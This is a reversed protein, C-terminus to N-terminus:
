RGPPFPPRGQGPPPILNPPVGAAQLTAAGNTPDRWMVERSLRQLAANRANEDAIGNAWNVASQPDNPAIAYAMSASASDHAQGNPLGNVWDTAASLNARAWQGVAQSVARSSTQPDGLSLSWNAAAAPDQGAWTRVVQNVPSRWGGGSPDKAAQAAAAAPDVNAWERYALNTLPENGPFDGAKQALVFAASPDTDALYSVIGRLAQYRLDPNPLGMARDIAGQVGTAAEQQFVSEAINEYGANSAAFQLAGNPDSQVWSSILLRSALDRDSSGPLRRIRKLADAYEGPKLTNIFSQLDTMRQRPDTEKLIAELAKKTQGSTSSFQQLEVAPATPKTAASAVTAAPPSTPDDQKTSATSETAVFARDIAVGAVFIGGIILVQRLTM